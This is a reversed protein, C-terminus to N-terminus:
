KILLDYISLPATANIITLTYKWHQCVKREKDFQRTIVLRVLNMFHVCFTIFPWNFIGFFFVRFTCFIACFTEWVIFHVSALCAHFRMKTLVRTSNWTWATLCTAVCFIKLAKLWSLANMWIQNTILMGLASISFIFVKFFAFTLVLDLSQNLFIGSKFASANM